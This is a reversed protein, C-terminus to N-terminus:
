EDSFQQKNIEVAGMKTDEMISVLNYYVSNTMKESVDPFDPNIREKIRNSHTDTEPDYFLTEQFGIKKFVHKMGENEEYTGTFFCSNIFKLRMLEILSTALGLSRYSASTLQTGLEIYGDTRLKYDLYSIINNDSDYWAYATWIGKSLGNYVMNPLTDKWWKKPKFESEYQYIFDRAKGYNNEDIRKLYLGNQFPASCHINIMGLSCDIKTIPINNQIILELCHEYNYGNYLMHGNSAPSQMLTIHVASSKSYKGGDGYPDYSFLDCPKRRFYEVSPLQDNKNDTHFCWYIITAIFSSCNSQNLEKSTVHILNKLEGPLSFSSNRLKSQLAFFIHRLQEFTLRRAVYMNFNSEITIAANDKYALKKAEPWLELQNKFILCAQKASPRQLSQLLDSPYLLSIILHLINPQTPKVLIRESSYERPIYIDTKIENQFVQCLVGLNLM